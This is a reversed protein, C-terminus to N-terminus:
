LHSCLLISRYLATNQNSFLIRKHHYCESKGFYWLWKFIACRYKSWIFNYIRFLM